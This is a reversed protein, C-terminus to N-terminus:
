NSDGAPLGRGQCQEPNEARGKMTGMAISKSQFSHSTLWLHIESFCCCKFTLNMLFSILLLPHFVNSVHFFFQSQTPDYFNCHISKPSTPWLIVCNLTTWNFITVASKSSLYKEPLMLKQNFNSQLVLSSYSMLICCYNTGFINEDVKM